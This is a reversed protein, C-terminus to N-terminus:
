ELYREPNIAETGRRLEFHLQPESVSGSSGVTGISQGRQVIEGRKILLRDMHAYASMWRDEHRILVLNGSGKLENGAYVVVGNEAARVPAGRPAGINIGDNHLGDKKPGYSSIVRGDVPRLFKGSSRAPTKATIKTKKEAITPEQKTPVPEPARLATATRPQASAKPVAKPRGEPAKAYSPAPSPLRLKQGSELVYPAKLNNLRAIETTSTGFMRSVGYLTDGARVRYEMPPPLKLRQGGYLYFPPQLNNLVAVDQLAVNYRQSISWLTEGSSVTHVGLTGAGMGGGYSTVPAPARVTGCATLIFLLFLFLIEHKKM